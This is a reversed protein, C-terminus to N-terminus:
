GRCRPPGTQKMPHSQPHRSGHRLLEPTAVVRVQLPGTREQVVIEEIDAERREEDSKDYLKWQRGSTWLSGDDDGRPKLNRTAVRYHSRFKEMELEREADEKEKRGMKRGMKRGPAPTTKLASQSASLRARKDGVQAQGAVAEEKNRKRVFRKDTM